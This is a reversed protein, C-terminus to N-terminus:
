KFTSYNRQYINIKKIDIKERNVSLFQSFHESLTLLINGSSMEDHINNSFINDIITATTETVRTPHLIHPLFGYCCLLNFFHQDLHATDIKLLDINLDGCIYVKKNERSLKVLCKELCQYFENINNHPLRYINGIVINKSSKNKVEIWM